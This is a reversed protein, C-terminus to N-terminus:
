AGCGASSLYVLSDAAAQPARKITSICSRPVVGSFNLAFPQLAPGGFITVAGPGGQCKIQAVQLASGPDLSATSVEATM